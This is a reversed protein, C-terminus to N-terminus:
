KWGKGLTNDCHKLYEIEDNLNSSYPSPYNIFAEFAKWRNTLYQYGSRLLEIDGKCNELTSYNRLVASISRRIRKCMDGYEVEGVVNGEPFFLSIFELAEIKNTNKRNHVDRKRLAPSIVREAAHEKKRKVQRSRGDEKSM